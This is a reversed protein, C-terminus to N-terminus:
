AAAALDGQAPPGLRVVAEAVRAIVGAWDGPATQRFLRASKYWPTDNRGLMWRGDPGHPLMIWVPKGLAGALHATSTDVSVVLDLMAVLEATAAFDSLRPSNDPIGFTAEIAASDPGVQLSVFGIDPVALLPALAALPLSRRADGPHAPNGAWVVGVQRRPSRALPAQAGGAKLYGGAAPVTDIRIGLRRALSMQDIWLDADPLAEDSALVRVPLQRLLRLLPKPCALTVQAAREALLPLFRACQIIDGMGQSAVVLLHKGALDEGEWTPGPLFPSSAAFLDPHRRWEYDEWARAWDGSLLHVTARNWHARAFGPRLRIATDCSDAAEALRGQRTQLWGLSAHAEALALDLRLAHRMHAEAAVFDDLCGLANGLNLWASADDPRLAVARRLAVAAEADRHQASLATGRLFWAEGSEPDLALATDAAALAAPAQQLRLLASALVAHALALEPAAAVARRGLDAAEAHRGLQELARACNVLADARDSQRELVRRYLPVAAAHDGGASLADAYALLTDSNDPRLSVADALLGAAQEARGGRLALVGALHLAMPQRPADQLVGNALAEAAAADGEALRAYAAVLRDVVWDQL